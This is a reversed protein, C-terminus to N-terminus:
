PQLAVTAHPAYFGHFFPESSRYKPLVVVTFTACPTLPVTCSLPENCWYTGYRTCPKFCPPLIQAGFRHINQTFPKDRTLHTELQSAGRRLTLTTDMSEMTKLPFQEIRSRECRVAPQFLGGEDGCRINMKEGLKAYGIGRMEKNKFRTDCMSLHTYRMELM